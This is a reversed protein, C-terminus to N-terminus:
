PTTVVGGESPASVHGYIMWKGAVYNGTVINKVQAYDILNSQAYVSCERTNDSAPKDCARCYFVWLGTRPLQITVQLAQTSGILYQKKEGFNWMYFEFYDNLIPNTDDWGITLNENTSMTYIIMADHQEFAFVKKSIFSFILIVIAVFILYCIGIISGVFIKRIMTKSGNGPKLGDPLKKMHKKM